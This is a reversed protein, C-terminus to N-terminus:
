LRRLLFGGNQQRQFIGEPDYKAATEQLRRLNEGGYSDLVTQTPSADNMFTFDLLKGKARAINQIGGRLDDAWKITEVDLSEGPWAGFVVWWTQPVKELGISNRSREEGAEVGSVALPQITYSMQATTTKNMELWLKHVEVYLDYSVKTTATSATRRAPPFPYGISGVLSKLTGNTTPVASHVLSTLNFFADFAKPKEPAAYFLGVVVSDTNFVVFMGIKPDENMADQVEVTARLINMYDSPDYINVTYQTEILPYTQIDFRIVIGFNTGGGKLARYLDPNTDANANVVSSDGLVIEYNKVNDAPLGYINPFAPMGGGLTFGGVGVDFSRAGIVSRGREEVFKYVDGWKCGGDAHLIGDKDLSLSKLDRLDVLVGSGGVSSFGSNQMHGTSRIAFKSQTKKLVGLVTAVDHTSSPRVFCAAPLWCTKSWSLDREAQYSEDDETIVKGPFTTKLVNCAAEAGDAALKEVSQM